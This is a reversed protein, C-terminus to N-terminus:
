TGDDSSSILGNGDEDWAVSISDAKHGELELVNGSFDFVRILSDRCSTAVLEKTPHFAVGEVDDLHKDFLRILRLNPLAWVRASYDSSSTLLYKGCASFVLQNALHDHWSRALPLGSAADWLIIKNDYGATAIYKNGFSAIGSIPSDHKLM